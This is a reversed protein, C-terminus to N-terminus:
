AHAHSPLACVALTGPQGQRHLADVGARAASEPALHRMATVADPDFSMTAAPGRYGALAAAVRRCLSAANDGVTKIEVYVPVRGGVLDLFESFRIIRDGTAKFPVAALAEPTRAALPGSGETLRELTDDHFVVPEDGAAAQVDTEIAYGAAIAARFASPTNEILTRGDHLGRHAVPGLTWPLASFLRM